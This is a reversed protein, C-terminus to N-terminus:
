RSCEPDPTSSRADVPDDVIGRRRLEADIRESVHGRVPLRLIRREVSRSHAVSARAIEEIEALTLPRTTM